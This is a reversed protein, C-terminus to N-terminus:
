GGIVLLEAEFADDYEAEDFEADDYEPEDAALLQLLRAARQEPVVPDVVLQGTDDALYGPLAEGGDWAAEAEAEAERALAGLLGAFASAPVPTSAPGVPIAPNAGGLLAALAQATEPRGLISRLANAAPGGGGQSVMGLLGSLGQAGSRGTLTGATNVVGSLVGGVNRAPGRAHQQLAQGAGGTIAGGIIGPLGLASGSAAGRLAGQAVSSIVPAAQSLAKSLGGFFEEYEAPTIGEGFADEFVAELQDDPLGAFREDLVERLYPYFTDSEYETM